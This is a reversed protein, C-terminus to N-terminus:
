FRVIVRPLHAAESFALEYTIAVLVTPFDPAFAPVFVKTQNTIPSSLLRRSQKLNAAFKEHCIRNCDGLANILSAHSGKSYYDAQNCNRKQREVADPPILKDVVVVVRVNKKIRLDASADTPVSYNPREIRHVTTIPM